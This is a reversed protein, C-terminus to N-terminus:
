VQHSYKPVPVGELVAAVNGELLTDGFSLPLGRGEPAISLYASRIKEEPVALIANARGAGSKHLDELAMGQLVRQSHMESNVVMRRCLDPDHVRVQFVRYIRVTPHDAAHVNATPTPQNETIIRLPEVTYQAPELEIGLTDEFEEELERTIDSELNQNETQGLNQFCYRQVQQWANPRIFIRFDQEDRSRQSDFNFIGAQSSLPELDLIRVAGGFPQARVLVQEQQGSILSAKHELALMPIGNEPDPFVVRALTAVSLRLSLDKTPGIGIGPENV